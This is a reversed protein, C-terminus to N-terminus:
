GAKRFFTLVGGLGLVSWIYNKINSTIKKNKSEYPEVVRATIKPQPPKKSHNKQQIQQPKDFDLTLKQSDLKKLLSLTYNKGTFTANFDLTGSQNFLERYMVIKTGQTILATCNKCDINAFLKIKDSYKKQRTYFSMIEADNPFIEPYTICETCKECTYCKKCVPPEKCNAAEIYIQEKTEIGLGKVVLTYDGTELACNEKILVPVSLKTRSNKQSVTVKTTESLKINEDDEIYIEVVSKATTGKEIIIEVRIIDGFEADPIKTIDFKEAFQECRVGVLKQAITKNCSSHLEAKILYTGCVSPTWSKQSLKTTNYKKKVIGGSIDEIWYEIVFDETSNIHFNYKIKEGAVFVDKLTSISIKSNCTSTEHYYLEDSITENTNNSQLGTNNSQLDTNNSQLGTNNSQSGNTILNVSDNQITTNESINSLNDFNRNIYGRGPTGGIIDSEVWNNDIYELTYGNDNALTGDYAVSDVLSGNPAYLFISDKVNNLNNGITAGASYYSINTNNRLFFEEVILAYDSTGSGLLVLTDNSSLDGILWGSLSTNPAYVEVFEKNNDSGPPNYMVETLHVGYVSISIIFFIIVFTTKKWFPINNLKM